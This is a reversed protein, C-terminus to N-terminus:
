SERGPMERGVEGEFLVTQGIEERCEAQLTGVLLGNRRASSYETKLVKGDKRQMLDNLREELRTQLLAEGAQEQIPMPSVSYERMTEHVLSLPMDQGGPLRLTYNNTIKDYREYSIGGNKYFQLRHDFFILSWRSTENGTYEKVDVEQPIVATLTRWTQAYVEGAAHVTLTGLDVQSYEPEPIDVIGSILIEGEIVTDGERFCAQGNLVDQRVIIGSGDAVVHAPTKEDVIEPKQEKEKVLVEARTGHLNVSIWTLDKLTLLAENCVQNEDIEPGYAGPRVGLRKMEGLIAATPVMENGQVEVILIIKSLVSVVCLAMAFGLFLAYRRRFGALFGPVGSRKCVKIECQIRQALPELKGLDRYAIRMRLTHADPQSLSWFGIWEQACLNLFREPFAGTVEVEVSGQLFNIWRQM